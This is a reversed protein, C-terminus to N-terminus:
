QEAASEFVSPGSVEEVPLHLHNLIINVHNVKQKRPRGFFLGAILEIIVIYVINHIVFDIVPKVFVDEAVGTGCGLVWGTTEQEFKIGYLVLIFSCGFIYIGFLLYWLPAFHWSFWHESSWWQAIYYLVSKTRKPRADGNVGDGGSGITGTSRQDDDSNTHDAGGLVMTTSNAYDITATHHSVTELQIMSIDRVGAGADGGNGDHVYNNYNHRNHVRSTISYIEKLERELPNSGGGSNGQDNNYSHQSHHSDNHSSDGDDDDGASEQQVSHYPIRWALLVLFVIGSLSIVFLGLEIFLVRLFWPHNAQPPTVLVLVPVLGCMLLLLSLSSLSLVMYYPLPLHWQLIRRSVFKQYRIRLYTVELFLFYTVILLTGVGFQYDLNFWSGFNRRVLAMVGVVCGGYGLSIIVLLILSQWTIRQLLTKISMIVRTLMADGKDLTTLTAM